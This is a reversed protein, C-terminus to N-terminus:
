EFNTKVYEDILAFRPIPITDDEIAFEYLQQLDDDTMGFENQVHDLAEQYWKNIYQQDQETIAEANATSLKPDLQM